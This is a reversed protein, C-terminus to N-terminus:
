RSTNIPLFLVKGLCAIAQYFIRVGSRSAVASPVILSYYNERGHSGSVERPGSPRPPDRYDADWTITDVRSSAESARVGVLGRWYVVVIFVM